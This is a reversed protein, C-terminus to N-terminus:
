MSGEKRTELREKKKKIYIIYIFGLQGGLFFKVGTTQGIDVKLTKYIKRCAPYIIQQYHTFIM